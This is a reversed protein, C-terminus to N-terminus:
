LVTRHHTLRYTRPTTEHAAKFLHYFHSLNNIGCDLAIDAIPRETVRLERAAYQMRIQNIFGSPTLGLSARLTRIVHEPSRGAARVLGAAGEAFVEPRQAEECARALWDPLPARAPPSQPNLHELLTLLFAELAIRSHPAAGLGDLRRRSSRRAAPSLDVRCPLRTSPALLPTLEHPHRELLGLRVAPAYALNILTFGDDDTAELVHQDEPRVFILNGAFLKRTTGNIHHRGTGRELWFLEPFDHTHLLSHRGPLFRIIALHHCSGDPVLQHWRKHELM